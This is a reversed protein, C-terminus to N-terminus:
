DSAFGVTSSSDHPAFWCRVGENQLDAHLRKAFDEDKTSYSIFCSYHQIAQDFLSPLYDILREPLGVGRLFSLPLPGSKQLTRHDVISPGKHDCKELGIVSTLDVDPFITEGFRADTLDAGSLNAGSLNAFILNARTLDAGSLDARNLNARNLDADSLNARNLDADGLYARTLNARNLITGNLDARILDAGSLNAGSLDARTLNALNLDAGSLDAGSLHADAYHSESRWKNWAGIGQKLRRIHTEDAVAAGSQAVTFYVKVM